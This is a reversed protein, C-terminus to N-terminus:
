NIISVNKNEKKFDGTGILRSHHNECLLWKLDKSIIYYEFGFCESILKGIKKPNCNYIPYFDEDDDEVMLWVHNELDPIYRELHEFLKELDAVSFSTSKFDEWWWRRDGSKVFRNLCKNYVELGLKDNLLEIDGQTLSLTQIANSIEQKVQGM